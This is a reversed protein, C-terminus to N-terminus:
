RESLKEVVNCWCRLATKNEDMTSNAMFYCWFVYFAPNFSNFTRSIIDVAAHQHGSIKITLDGTVTCFSMEGCDYFEWINKIM